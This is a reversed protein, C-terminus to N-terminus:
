NYDNLRVQKTAYKALATGVEPYKENDNSGANEVYNSTSDIINHVLTLSCRSLDIVPSINESATSLSLTATFSPTGNEEVYDAVKGVSSLYVNEGLNINTSNVSATISTDPLVMRNIDLNYLDYYIDSTVHQNILNVTASSSSFVARNLKFKLDQTQDATWTSANQSKFLVGAYPQTSILGSGNIDVEGAQAIWVKYKASDSLVVVAYEVGSQLYVPAKFKFKAAIGPLGVTGPSLLDSSCM